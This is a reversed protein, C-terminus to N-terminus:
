DDHEEEKRHDGRLRITVTWGRLKSILDQQIVVAAREESPATMPHTM